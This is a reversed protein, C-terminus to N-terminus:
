NGSPEHAAVALASYPLKTDDVKKRRGMLGSAPAPLPSDVPKFHKLFFKYARELGFVVGVSCIM